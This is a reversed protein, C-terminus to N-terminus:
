RPSPKESMIRCLKPTWKDNKRTADVVGVGGLKQAVVLGLRIKAVRQKVQVKCIRAYETTANGEAVIQADKKKKQCLRPGMAEGVVAAQHVVPGNPFLVSGARQTEM